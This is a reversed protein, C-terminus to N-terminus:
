EDATPLGPIRIWAPGPLKRPTSVRPAARGWTMVCENVGSQEGRGLRPELRPELAGGDRRKTLEKGRLAAPALGCRGDGLAQLWLASLAHTPRAATHPTHIM